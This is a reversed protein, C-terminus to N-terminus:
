SRGGERITGVTLMAWVVMTVILATPGWRAALTLIGYTLAGYIALGFLISVITTVLQILAMAVLYVLGFALEVAGQMVDFGRSLPGRV